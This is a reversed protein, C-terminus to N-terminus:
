LDRKRSKADSLTNSIGNVDKPYFLVFCGFSYFFFLCM